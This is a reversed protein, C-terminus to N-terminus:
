LSIQAEFFSFKKINKCKHTNLIEHEASNLMSLTKYDRPRPEAFMLLLLFINDIIVQNAKLRETWDAEALRPIVKLIVATARAANEKFTKM